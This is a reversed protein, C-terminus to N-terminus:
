YLSPVLHDCAGKNKDHDHKRFKFHLLESLTLLLFGVVIALMGMYSLIPLVTGHLLWDSVVSAPITLLSGVSIFLPSSIVIGLILLCNFLADLGMTILIGQLSKGHPLEFSEIGTKDVIIIGPWALLITWVGLLGIFLMTHEVVKLRKWMQERGSSKGSAGAEEEEEHYHQDDHDHDHYNDRDHEDYNISSREAVVLTPQTEKYSGWRKFLVEYLSYLMTSVIVLVYGWVDNKADDGGGKKKTSKDDSSLGDVCLMVVGGLCCVVAVIKLLSVKEKLVAVSFVFVFVCSSNYIATNVSVFTRSLSLYWTYVVVYVLVSYVLTPLWNAKLQPWWDSGGENRDVVAASRQRKPRLSAARHDLGQSTISTTRQRQRPPSQYHDGSASSDDSLVLDYHVSARRRRCGLLGKLVQVVVWLVFFVAYASHVLFSMFYPKNYSNGGKEQVSQLIEAMAVWTAVIGALCGVTGATKLLTARLGGDEQGM